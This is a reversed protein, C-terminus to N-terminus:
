NIEYSAKLTFPKNRHLKDHHKVAFSFLSLYIRHQFDPDSLAILSNFMSVGMEFKCDKRHYVWAFIVDQKGGAKLQAADAIKQIDIKCDKVLTSSDFLFQNTFIDFYGFCVLQKRKM